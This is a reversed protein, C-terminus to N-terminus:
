GLNFLNFYYLNLWRVNVNFPFINVMADVNKLYSISHFSMKIFM